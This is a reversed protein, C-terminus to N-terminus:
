VDRDRYLSKTWEGRGMHRPGWKRVLISKEKLYTTTAIDTRSWAMVPTMRTLEEKKGPHQRLGVRM